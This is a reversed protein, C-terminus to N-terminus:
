SGVTLGTTSCKCFGCNWGGRLGPCIRVLNSRGVSMEGAVWSRGVHQEARRAVRGLAEEEGVVADRDRRASSRSRLPYRQLRCCSPVAEGEVQSVRRRRRLRFAFFARLTFQIV